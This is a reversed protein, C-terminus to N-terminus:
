GRCARVLPWCRPFAQTLNREILFRRVIALDPFVGFIKFLGCRALDVARLGMPADHFRSLRWDRQHFFNSYKVGFSALGLKRGSSCVLQCPLSVFSPDQQMDCLEECDDAYRIYRWNESRIGHNGQNHSTIAPRDRKISANQLQSQLTIGELDKRPTLGCLEVLTPYIDLLEAPQSCPQNKTIGPGAFILPVRTDDDWFTNKGTISKLQEVAWNAVQFDGKDEDRHLFVGWDMLPNNRMPTPDILKKELKVGIGGAKDWVDFEEAQKQAGGM